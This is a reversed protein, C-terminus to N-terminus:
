IIGRRFFRDLALRRALPPTTTQGYHRGEPKKNHPITGMATPTLCPDSVSPVPTSVMTDDVTMQSFTLAGGLLVIDSPYQIRTPPGPSRENSYDVAPVVM